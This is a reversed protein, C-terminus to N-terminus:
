AHVSEVACKKSQPNAATLREDGLFPHAQFLFSANSPTPLLAQTTTSRSTTSYTAAPNLVASFTTARCAEIFRSSSRPGTSPWPACDHRPSADLEMGQVDMKIGHVVRNADCIGDWVADLGVAIIATMEVHGDAPLKIQQPAFIELEKIFWDYLPRHVEFELTCISHTIKEISDCQGHAFDYM